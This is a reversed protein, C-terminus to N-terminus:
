CDPHYRYGTQTVYRCTYPDDVQVYIFRITAEAGALIFVITMIFIAPLLIYDRRPLLWEADNAGVTRISPDQM